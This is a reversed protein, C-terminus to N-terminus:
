SSFVLSLCVSLLTLLLSNLTVAAAGSPGTATSTTTSSPTTMKVAPKESVTLRVQYKVDVHLIDCDYVGSDSLQLNRMIISFNGKHYEDPFSEVRGKFRQNASLVDPVNQNIDLVNNDDKDRWFASVKGPLPDQGRYVCPLLVSDGTFGRVPVQCSATTLSVLM